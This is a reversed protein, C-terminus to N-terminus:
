NNRKLGEAAHALMARLDAAADAWSLDKASIRTPGGSTRWARLAAALGAATDDSFYAVGEPAIERFIPLDRVLVPKTYVAAEVLPLGFGEGRSALLMGTCAAYLQELYEDSANDIWRLRNGFQGHTRLRDQLRETKWGPRGVILLKFDEGPKPEAWLAEFAALAQDYGKRPELTGVMLVCTGSGAWALIEAAEAPLGRSPRSGAISAGLRISRIAPAPANQARLWDTLEDAVTRSICVLLDAERTILRLWNDYHAGAEETFWEPEQLPLLDYVLFALAVGKHRWDRLQAANHTVIKTSLDLGLFVDGRRPAPLARGWPWPLRQVPRELFDHPVRRYRARASGAVPVIEFDSSVESELAQWLARVVRQIGTGADRRAIISIDVYLRRRNALPNARMM